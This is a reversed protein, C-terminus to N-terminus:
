LIFKDRTSIHQIGYTKTCPTKIEDTEIYKRIERKIDKKVWQNCLLINNSKWRNKSKWTKRRIYIKLKMENHDLFIRPIVEVHKFKSINIKNGLMHNIHLINWTCKVFSYIRSRNLHRSFQRGCEWRKLFPKDSRLEKCIATVQDILTIKGLRINLSYLVYVDCVDKDHFQVLSKHFLSHCKTLEQVGSNGLM